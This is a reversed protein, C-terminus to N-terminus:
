ANVGEPAGCADGDVPSLDVMKGRAMSLKRAGKAWNQELYQELTQSADYKKRWKMAQFEVSLMAKVEAVDATLETKRDTLAKGDMMERVEMVEQRTLAKLEGLEVLQRLTLKGERAYELAREAEKRDAAEIVENTTMKEGKGASALGGGASVGAKPTSTKPNFSEWDELSGDYLFALEERRDYGEERLFKAYAAAQADGPVLAVAKCQASSLALAEAACRVATARPLAEFTPAVELEAIPTMRLPANDPADTILDGTAIVTWNMASGESGLPVQAQLEEAVARLEEVDGGPVLTVLREIGALRAATYTAELSGRPPDWALWSTADVERLRAAAEEPSLAAPDFEEVVLVDILGSYRASRSILRKKAFAPDPTLAVIRSWVGQAHLVDFVQQDTREPADLLGSVAVGGNLTPLLPPPAGAETMNKEPAEVDGRIEAELQAREKMKQDYASVSFDEGGSDFFEPFMARTKDILEYSTLNSVDGMKEVLLDYKKQDEESLGSQLEEFTKAAALPAPGAGAIGNRAVPKAGIRRSVGSRQGVAPVWATGLSCALAIVLGRIVM